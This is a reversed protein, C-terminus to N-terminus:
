ASAARDAYMLVPASSSHIKLWETLLKPAMPYAVGYGQVDECGIDRLTELEGVTEAGEAVVAIELGHALDILARVIKRKSLDSDIGRVFREDIKLRDIENCSLHSLSAYGTGFDDLEVYVGVERLQRLKDSIDDRIGDLIVGEVIEVALNGLPLGADRATGLVFPVFDDKAIETQAANIAVRGFDIGAHHWTAAQAIASSIVHRGIADLLGAKEAIPIFTDPAVFGEGNRNWRALAEIGTVRASELSVQPQYDVGIEGKRLSERLDAELAHRLEHEQRLDNSFFRVCGRGEAKAQYLALDSDILLDDTNEADDPFVAIGISAGSPFVVGEFEIPKAISAVIRNAVRAIDDSNGPANLLVIFEDGGIRAPLDAARVAAKIRTAVTKIVHDGAMHGYTDNIIKFKDLDLHLVAVRENRRRANEIMHEFHDTLFMRNRLGTLRDHAALYAMDNRATMLERTRQLVSHIMPRFIFMVTLALVLMMAAFLLRYASKADLITQRANRSLLESVNAYGSLAASATSNSVPDAQGHTEPNASLDVFLRAQEVIERAYFDVDYPPKTLLQKLKAKAEAGLGSGDEAASLLRAHNTEFEAIRERLDNIMAAHAYIQTTERALQSLLVIRQSLMKQEGALFIISKDEFQTRIHRDMVWYSGSALSAILLVAFWYSLRIRKAVGLTEGLTNNQEAGVPRRMM